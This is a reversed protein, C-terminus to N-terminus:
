VITKTLFYLWKGLKTKICFLAIFVTTYYKLVFLLKIQTTFFDILFVDFIQMKGFPNTWPKQWFILLKKKYLELFFPFRKLSYFYRNFCGWIQMKVLPNYWPKQWFVLSKEMKQKLAFHIFLFLESFNYFLSLRLKAIFFMSRFYAWFNQM